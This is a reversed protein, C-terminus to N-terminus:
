RGRTSDPENRGRDGPTLGSHANDHLLVAARRDGIGGADLADRLADDVGLLGAVLDDDDDRRHPVRRVLQDVEGVLDRRQRRGTLEVHQEGRTLPHRHRHQGHRDVVEAVLRAREGAGLGADDGVGLV